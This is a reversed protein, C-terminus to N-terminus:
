KVELVDGGDEWCEGCCFVVSPHRVMMGWEEGHVEWRRLRM